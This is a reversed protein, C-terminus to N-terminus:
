IKIKNKLLIKKIFNVLNRKKRDYKINEDYLM